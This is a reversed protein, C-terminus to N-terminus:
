DELHESGENAFVMSLVIDEDEDREVIVNTFFKALCWVGVKLDKDITPDEPVVESLSNGMLWVGIRLFFGALAKM